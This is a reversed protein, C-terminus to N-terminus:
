KATPTETVTEVKKESSSQAAKKIVKESTCAQSKKVGKMHECGKDNCAFAPMAAVVLGLISLTVARKM